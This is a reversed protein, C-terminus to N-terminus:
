IMYVDKHHYHIAGGSLACRAGQERQSLGLSIATIRGTSQLYWQEGGLVEGSTFGQVIWIHSRTKVSSKECAFYNVM